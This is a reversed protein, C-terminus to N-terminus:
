DRGLAKEKTQCFELIILGIAGAMIAVDAINFIGTRLSGLGVNLFDTVSGQTIRDILNSIGGGVILSILFSQLPALKRSFAVFVAAAALFIFPLILFLWLKAQEPFNSGFGLFAGKNKIFQLRFTDYFFSQTPEHALKKEAIYKTLQDCGICFTLVLSTSLLRQYTNKFM